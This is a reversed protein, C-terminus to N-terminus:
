TKAWISASISMRYPYAFVHTILDPQECTACSLFEMALYYTCAIIVCLLSSDRVIRTSSLITCISACLCMDRLVM